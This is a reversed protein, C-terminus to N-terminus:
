NVGLRRELDSFLRDAWPSKQRILHPDMCALIEYSIRGHAYKGKKSHRSANEMGRQVAGKPVEEIKPNASLSRDSFAEGFFRSLLARDALFWSEMCQVMLHCDEKDAGRPKKWGDRQKLHAWPNSGPPIRGESDVLLLARTRERVAQCFDDYADSRSGSPHVRPQDRLNLQGLFDHFARRVARKLYNTEGGGEVYIVVM